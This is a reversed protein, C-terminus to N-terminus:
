CVPKDISRSFLGPFFYHYLPNRLSAVGYIPSKFNFNHVCLSHCGVLKKYRFTWCPDSTDYAFRNVFLPVLARKVLCTKFGWLFWINKVASGRSPQLSSTEPQYAWWPPTSTNKGNLLIHVLELLKEIKRLFHSEEMNDDINYIRQVLELM